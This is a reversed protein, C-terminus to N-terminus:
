KVVELPRLKGPLPEDGYGQPGDWPLGAGQFFASSPGVGALGDQDGTVSVQDGTALGGPASEQSGIKNM